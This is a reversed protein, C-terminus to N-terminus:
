NQDVEGRQCVVRGLGSDCTAPARAIAVWGLERSGNRKGQQLGIEKRCGSYVKFFKNLFIM